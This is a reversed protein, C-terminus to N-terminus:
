SVSVTKDRMNEPLPVTNKNKITVLSVLRCFRLHIKYTIIM